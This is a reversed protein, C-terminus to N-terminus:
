EFLMSLNSKYNKRLTFWEEASAVNKKTLRNLTACMEESLAQYRNRADEGTRKSDGKVPATDAGTTGSWSHGVGPRDKEVTGVLETLIKERVRKSAGFGGLAKMAAAALPLVDSKQVITLLYPVTADSCIKGACDIADALLPPQSDPTPQKLYVVIFRGAEPSGLDGLAKLASREVEDQTTRSLIMGIVDLCRSKLKEDSLEKCLEAAAKIDLRVADHALDTLHTKAAKEVAVIKAIAEKTAAEAAPDAAHARRGGVAVVAALALGCAIVRARVRGVRAQQREGVM